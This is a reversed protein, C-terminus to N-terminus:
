DGIEGYVQLDGVRRTVPLTLPAHWMVFPQSYKGVMEDLAKLHEKALGQVIAVVTPFLLACLRSMGQDIGFSDGLLLSCYISLLM